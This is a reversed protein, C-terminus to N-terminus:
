NELYRTNGNTIRRIGHKSQYLTKLGYYSYGVVEATLTSGFFIMKSFKENAIKIKKDLTELENTIDVILDSYANYKNRILRSYFNFKERFSNVIDLFPSHSYNFFSESVAGSITSLMGFLSTDKIVVKQAQSFEHMQKEKQVKYLLFDENDFLQEALKEPIEDFENLYDLLEKYTKKTKIERFINKLGDNMVERKETSLENIYPIEKGFEVIPNETDRIFDMPMSGYNTEMVPFEPQEEVVEEIIIEKEDNGNPMWSAENVLEKAIEPNQLCSFISDINNIKDAVDKGIGRFVMGFLEKTNSKGKADTFHMCQQLVNNNDSLEKLTNIFDLTKGHKMENILNKSSYYFHNCQLLFFILNAVMILSFIIMRWENGGQMIENKPIYGVLLTNLINRIMKGDINKDNLMAVMLGILVDNKYACACIISAFYLDVSHIDKYFKGVAKKTNDFFIDPNLSISDVLKLNVENFESFICANIKYAPFTSIIDNEHNEVLFQRLLKRQLSGEFINSFDSKVRMSKVSSSKRSRSKYSASKRSRSLSSGGKSKRVKKTSSHKNNM